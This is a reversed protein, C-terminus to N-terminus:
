RDHWWFKPGHYVEGVVRGLDLGQEVKIPEPATWTRGKGYFDVNYVDEYLFVEFHHRFDTPFSCSKKNLYLYDIDFLGNKKSRKGVASSFEVLIKGYRDIEPADVTGVVRRKAPVVIRIDKWDNRWGTVVGLKSDLLIKFYFPRGPIVGPLSFKGSADTKWTSHFSENHRHLNWLEESKPDTEKERGHDYKWSSMRIMQIEANGVPRGATDVLRGTTNEGRDVLVIEKELPIWDYSDVWKGSDLIRAAFQPSIQVFVKGKPIGSFRVWGREDSKGYFYSFDDPSTKIM